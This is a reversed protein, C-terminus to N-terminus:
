GSSLKNLADRLGDTAHDGIQKFAPRFFVEGLGLIGKFTIVADYGVVAGGDQAEFTIVDVWTMLSSEGELVIRTHPDYATITYPLDMSGTLFKAKLMFTTGVGIPGATVKEAALTAPDWVAHTFDAVYAFAQEQTTAVALSRFYHAM